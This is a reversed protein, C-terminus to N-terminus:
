KTRGKEKLLTLQRPIHQPYRGALNLCEGLAPSLYLSEITIEARGLLTAQSSRGARLEVHHLRLGEPLKRGHVREGTRGDYSVLYKIDRYNLMELVEVFEHFLVGQLYRPDREGCVGQYPPDLYVLDDPTARALIEKYDRAICSTKGRLLHSAGLIQLRMTEPVAGMRRNDPSQNFDGNANYRVSAKVCRALLYLFHDPQGSRNFNERVTDYYQRRDNHQARWLSEYQRALKEPSEIIARWLEVLPENLDAIIYREALRHAAAALTIAASGAFPEILTAVEPPFYGLIAPALNRKSGQYPIPHPVKM